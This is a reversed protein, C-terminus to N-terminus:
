HTLNTPPSYPGKDDDPQRFLYDMVFSVLLIVASLGTMWGRGGGRLLYAMVYIGGIVALRWIRARRKRDPKSLSPDAPPGFKDASPNEYV